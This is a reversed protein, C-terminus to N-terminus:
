HDSLFDIEIWDSSEKLSEKVHRFIGKADDSYGLYSAYSYPAFPGLHYGVRYGSPISSAVRFAVWRVM